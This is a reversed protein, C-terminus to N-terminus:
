CARELAHECTKLNIQIMHVLDEATTKADSITSFLERTIENQFLNQVLALKDNLWAQAVPALMQELQILDAKQIGSAAPIAVLAVLDNLGFLGALKVKIGVAGAPDGTHLIYTVAATAPIINLFASFTQRLQGMINMRSRIDIALETLREELQESFQVLQAKQDLINDMSTKWSLSQLHKRAEDVAAHATTHFQIIGEQSPEARLDGERDQDPCVALINDMIQQMREAMPEASPLSVTIHDGTSIKYLRGASRILDTELKGAYDEIGKKETKDKGSRKLWKVAKVTLKLPAEVVAGTKRMAKIHIPDTKLWIASFRRMVEDMPFHQMAEQVCSGQAAKLTEEYLKLASLACNGQDLCYKSKDLFDNFMSRIIAGRLERPDIRGLAQVFSIGDQDVPRITMFKKGAAVANDEDARFVGLINDEANEGFLNQAVVSAHAKVEDNSFAEFTRYVLFCKRTGVHTLMTSIFDTNDRNNYNANTFIYILIDAAELAKETIERNKYVGKSGTDFDPTDMIALHKPVREGSVFVPPGPTKLLDSHELKEPPSGFPSFLSDMAFPHKEFHSNVSILVRRNIGAMGGTPSVTDDSLTNFLTSKGSSGGGCIAATLPFDEMMRPLFGTEVAHTWKQIDSESSLALTKSLQQIDNKIATLAQITKEEFM